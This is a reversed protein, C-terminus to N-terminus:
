LVYNISIVEYEVDNYEFIENLSLGIMEKTFPAQISILGNEIDSEYSSVIKYTKELDTDLNVFTVTAGFGIKSNDKIMSKEFIVSNILIDNLSTIKKELRNQSDLAQLYEPPFEDSVGIPRTDELLQSIKPRETQILTNLEKTVKDYGQKTIIM